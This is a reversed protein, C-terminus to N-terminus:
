YKDYTFVQKGHCVLILERPMNLLDLIQCVAGTIHNLTRLIADIKKVFRLNEIIIINYGVDKNLKHM